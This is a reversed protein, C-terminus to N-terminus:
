ILVSGFKEEGHKRVADPFDRYLAITLNQVKSNVDFHVSEVPESRSAVTSFAADLQALDRTEM